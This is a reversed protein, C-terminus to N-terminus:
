SLGFGLAVVGDELLFRLIASLAVTSGRAPRIPASIEPTSMERGSSASVTATM